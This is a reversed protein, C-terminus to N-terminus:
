ALLQALTKTPARGGSVRNVADALQSFQAVTMNEPAIALLATVTTATLHPALDVACTKPTSVSASM